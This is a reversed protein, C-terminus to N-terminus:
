SRIHGQQFSYKTKIIADVAARVNHTDNGVTAKCNVDNAQSARRDAKGSESGLTLPEPNASKHVVKQSKPDRSHM